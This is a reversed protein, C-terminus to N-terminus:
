AQEGEKHDTGGFNMANYYEHVEEVSTSDTRQQPFPVRVFHSQDLDSLQSWYYGHYPIEDDWYARIANLRQQGDILINRLAPPLGGAVRFNVAYTGIPIHRWISDILKVQQDVTWVLPRQFNPIVHGLLMPLKLPNYYDRDLADTDREHQHYLHDLGFAMSQAFMLPKPRKFTM